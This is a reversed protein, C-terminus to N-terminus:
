KIKLLAKEIVKGLTKEDLEENRIKAEHYPKLIQEKLWELEVDFEACIAEIVDMDEKRIGYHVFLTDLGKRGM